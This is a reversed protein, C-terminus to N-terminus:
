VGAPRSVAPASVERRERVRDRILSGAAGAGAVLSIGVAAWFLKMATSRAFANRYSLEPTPDPPFPYANASPVTWLASYKGSVPVKVRESQARSGAVAVVVFTISAILVVVRRGAFARPADDAALAYLLLGAALILGIYLAQSADFAPAYMSGAAPRGGWGSKLTEGLEYPCLEHFARALMPQDPLTRPASEINNLNQAADENDLSRYLDAARQTNGALQHAVAAIFRLDVSDRRELIQDMTSAIVPHGIEDAFPVPVSELLRSRSAAVVRVASAAVLFAALLVLAKRENGALSQVSRRRTIVVALLVAAVVVIAIQAARMVDQLALANRAGGFFEHTREFVANERAAANLDGHTRFYKSLAAACLDDGDWSLGTLERTRVLWLYDRAPEPHKQSVNAQRRIFPAALMREITTTFTIPLIEEKRRRLAEAYLRDSWDRHGLPESQRIMWSFEYYPTGRNPQALMEAFIRNAAAHDGLEWVTLALTFRHWPQTPDRAIAKDLESKLDPLTAPALPEENTYRFRAVPLAIGPAGLDRRFNQGLFWGSRMRRLRNLLTAHAPTIGQFRGNAFHLTALEGVRPPGVDYRVTMGTDDVSFVRPIGPLEWRDVVRDAAPDIAVLTAADHVERALWREKVYLIGNYLAAESTTFRRGTAAAARLHAAADPFRFARADIDALMALSSAHAPDLKLAENLERAADEDRRMQALCVAKQFLADATRRTQSLLELAHKPDNRSLAYMAAVFTVLDGIGEASTKRLEIQNGGQSQLRIVDPTSPLDAGLIRAEVNLNTATSLTSLEERKRQIITLSPQVQSEDRLAFAQGWIVVNAGLRQGLARASDPDRVATKTEDIGIVRAASGIRNVVAQQILAAMSRGEQEADRDPGWFPAVAVVLRDDRATVLAQHESRWKLAVFLIISLALLALSLARLVPRLRASGSGTRTKTAIRPKPGIGVADVVNLLDRYSTPRDDPNKATMWVVLDALKKGADRRFSTVSPLEGHLHQAIIALASDGEFPKRGTVMEFLTVGLSYIDARFDAERGAAQEPAVYHPSGLLYGTQTLSSDVGKEADIGKALGFDAVKVEGRRDFLINSPKIDRHVIKKEWAAELADVVKHLIANVEDLALPGRRIRDSLTEGEVYEMVLYAREATAGFSYVRVVNPHEITALLRAERLFRARIAPDKAVAHSVVKIAVRRGLADDEALYVSGMGGQGLPRLVRYGPIDLDFKQAEHAITADDPSPPPREDSM